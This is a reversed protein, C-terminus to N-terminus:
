AATVLEVSKEYVKQDAQEELGELEQQVSRLVIDLFQARWADREEIAEPSPQFATVAERKLIGGQELLREASDLRERLVVVEGALALVMSLINDVTRDGLYVPRQGKAKRPLETMM